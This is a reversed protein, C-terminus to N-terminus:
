SVWWLALSFGEGLLVFVLPTSVGRERMETTEKRREEGADSGGEMEV